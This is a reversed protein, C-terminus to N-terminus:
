AMLNFCYVIKCKMKECLGRTRGETLIGFKHHESLNFFESSQANILESRSRIWRSIIIEQTHAM